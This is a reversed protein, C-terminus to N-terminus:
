IQSVQWVILVSFSIFSFKPIGVREGLGKFFSPIDGCSMTGIAAFKSLELNEKEQVAKCDLVEFSRRLEQVRRCIINLIGEMVGRCASSLQEESSLSLARLPDSDKFMPFMSIVPTLAAAIIKNLPISSTWQEMPSPRLVAIKFEEFDLFGDNNVDMTLFINEVTDIQMFINLEEMAAQLNEKLIGETGQKMGQILHKKHKQFVSLLFREDQRKLCYEVQLRIQDSLSDLNEMKSNTERSLVAKPNNASIGCGM